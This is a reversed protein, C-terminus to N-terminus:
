STEPKHCYNWAKMINDTPRLNPEGKFLKKMAGFHRQNKYGVVAHYHKTGANEHCFAGWEVDGEFSAKFEALSGTPNNWTIFWSRSKITKPM